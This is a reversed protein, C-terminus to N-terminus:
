IHNTWAENPIVDKEYSDGENFKFSHKFIMTKQVINQKGTM